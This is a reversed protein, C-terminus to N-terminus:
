PLLAMVQQKFTQGIPVEHNSIYIRNGAIRDIKTTAVIFSKHVRLFAASPLQQVYFSLPAHTLLMGTLLHVKTYSGYAELFLIDPLHLNHYAKDGKVFLRQLAVDTTPRPVPPPAPAQAPFANNIARLFREFSFPKLLYDAVNLEYGELAFEKHATTVIVKPPQALTRLFDFGSIRPMHLDLFILDVQHKQLYALAELANYCQEKIQLHPIEDAFKRILNHALPEDDVILYKIM